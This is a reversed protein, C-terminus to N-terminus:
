WYNELAYKTGFILDIIMLSLAGVFLSSMLYFAFSVFRWSRATCIIELDSQTRPVEIGNYIDNRIYIAKHIYVAEQLSDICHVENSLSSDATGYDVLITKILQTNSMNHKQTSLRLM